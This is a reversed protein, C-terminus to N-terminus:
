VPHIRVTFKVARQLLSNHVRKSYLGATERSLSLLVLLFFPQETVQLVEASLFTFKCEYIYFLGIRTAAYHLAYTQSRESAPIAPELGAPPM